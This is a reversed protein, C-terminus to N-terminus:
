SSQSTDCYTMIAVTRLRLSLIRIDKTKWRYAMQIAVATRAVAIRKRWISLATQAKTCPVCSM